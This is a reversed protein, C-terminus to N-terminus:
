YDTNGLATRSLHYALMSDPRMFVKRLDAAAGAQNGLELQAMASYYSDPSTPVGESPAVAILLKAHWKAEDYNGLRRAAKSAWAVQSAATFGAVQSTNSAFSTAREYHKKAEEAHGCGSQLEGLLYETRSSDLFAQMGDKTFYLGPVVAGLQSAMSLAADCHGQKALTMVHLLRVELWVQRVNTGNEQRQFFRNYFLSEARDFDGTEALALDYEYSLAALMNKFDPYRGLAAVRETAPRKLLSLTQDLGFYNDVNNPDDSEAGRKFAALAGETDGKFQLLALGLDRDLAPTQPHLQQARKWHEVGADTMGVSFELTGLLYNANADDPNAAFASQLVRYSTAGTPFIYKTSAKAAADYDDKASRGLKQECYARYYLVVPNDQPLAAGPESQDAPVQPYTRALVGLAKEYLGLAMYENAINLVRDTDGALHAVDPRGLEERLFYSTPYRALWQKALTNAADNQGLAHEVAVLEEASRVDDGASTLAETLDGAALQLRGQRAELEALRLSGAAHFQPLRLAEGYSLRAERERGLADYAIGLYYSPEPNETARAEVSKLDKIAEDYQLLDTALRGAVLQLTYSSPFKKLAERYDNLAPLRAGIMEKQNGLQVWDDETREAADPMPYRSQPGVHVDEKPTWDYEDETHHMLVTGSADLIDLTYRKQSDASAVEHKWTHEPALDQKESLVVNSGDSIRATAGPFAQNANFAIELASGKRSMNLVGSLDARVFGGLDRAPMWYESFHMTQRPELFFFTEQNRLVGNQVEMYASNNDSLNKRWDLGDSDAGFSWIKRGPLDKFPAYHVIGTNTHPHWIGNFSEASGYEFRSVPGYTENKEISVDTGTSNVPWTDIDGFGHFATFRMPYTIRSDDWVQIAANSWWYCRHRVDARNNLTAKTELVTSGPRLVLELIFETGYVRDINGIFISGSGDANKAYSYDIPSLTVWSHSVPFNFEIGVAAWSGRIGIDAKKISPNAYFMPQNSLKDICTYLHGGLDPLVTCKLYENELFVARLDHDNRQNTVQDRMTYPYNIRNNYQDFPPNPNPSGEEYVPMKYTGEWVKVQAFAPQLGALLSAVIILLGFHKRM